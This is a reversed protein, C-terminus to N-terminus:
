LRNVLEVFQDNRDYENKYEKGFSSFAPSFLIIDGPSAARLAAEVCERLTEHEESSVKRSVPDRFVKKLKETGTGSYLVVHKCTEEIVPGLLAPDAEKDTGGVILVINSDMGLARLAAATAEPTTANNDNFIRVDNVERLFELRGPVGPFTPLWELVEEETLGTAKLAALALTANLRNHDGPMALLCDEPLESGDVLVVEQGITASKGETMEEALRFVEPTTVLVGSEEQHLFIQAKDNFYRKRDGRYYTMHDDMFNTFVAIQPSIKAWGFGQLQWSDLEMVALSDETVEKLLQLNSVGRVNGGLLVGSQPTSRGIMGNESHNLGLESGGGETAHTLVHHVMHTVTSKGRTGTIGIVPIGSLKVFLAASMTVEVGAKQAAIIEPLDFPAGAGVILIDCETFHKEQYPGFTFRINEYDKLADVSPQMQEQPADDVVHVDAGAEALFAADGVGRGLLGLRMLTVRKEKFYDAGKVDM